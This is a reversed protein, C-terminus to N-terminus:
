CLERGKTRAEYRPFNCSVSVLSSSLQVYFCQAIGIGLFFAELKFQVMDAVLGEAGYESVFM